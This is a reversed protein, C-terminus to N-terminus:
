PVIRFGYTASARGAQLELVYDGQALPALTVDGVLYRTGSREDTRESMTVQLALPQGERTLVRGAGTLPGEALIPVEARLRETRRFRPDATAQYALGTTPGRRLAVLAPAISAGAAGVTADTTARITTTGREPRGELRVYYRGPALDAEPGEFVISRQGAPLPM